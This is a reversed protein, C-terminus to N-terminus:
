RCMEAGIKVVFLVFLTYTYKVDMNMSINGKRFCVKFFTFCVLFKFSKEFYIICPKKWEWIEMSKEYNGTVHQQSIITIVAMLHKCVVYLIGWNGNRAFLLLGSPHLCCSTEVNQLDNSDKNRYVTISLIIRYYSPYFVTKM